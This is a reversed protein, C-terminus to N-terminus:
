LVAHLHPRRFAAADVDGGDALGEPLRRGALLGLEAMGGLADGVAGGGARLMAARGHLRRRRRLGVASSCNPRCRRRADHQPGRWPLPLRRLDAEPQSTQADPLDKVPRRQRQISSLQKGGRVHLVDDSLTLHCLAHRLEGLSPPRCQPRSMCPEASGHLVGLRLEPAPLLQLSRQGTQALAEDGHGLDPDGGPGASRHALPASHADIQEGQWELKRRCSSRRPVSPHRECHCPTPGSIQLHQRRQPMRVHPRQQANGQIERLRIEVDACYRENM